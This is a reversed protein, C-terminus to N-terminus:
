EWPLNVDAPVLSFGLTRFDTDFSFLHDIGREDALIGSTHDVVSIRQDDYREFQDMAAEFAPKGVPVVNISDSRRIATVARVADTHGLKYLLLTALESLVSQSTYVPRFPVEGSQIASFVRTARRHHEDDEDSRAYFAGTDVFIPTAGADNM